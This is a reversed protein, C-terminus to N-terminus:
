RANSEAWGLEPFCERRKGLLRRLPEFRSAARGKLAVALAACAGLVSVGRAVGPSPPRPLTAGYLRQWPLDDALALCLADAGLPLRALAARAAADRVIALDVDLAARVQAGAVDDVETLRVQHHELMPQMPALEVSLAGPARPAGARLVFRAEWAVRAEPAVFLFPLVGLEVVSGGRELPAALVGRRIPYRRRGDPQSARFFLDDQCAQCLGSAHFERYSARDRFDGDAVAAGCSCKSGWRAPANPDANFFPTMPHHAERRTVSHHPDRQRLSM